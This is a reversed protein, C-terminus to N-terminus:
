SLSLRQRSIQELLLELEDDQASTKSSDAFEVAPCATPTAASMSAVAIESETDVDIPLTVLQPVLTPQPLPSHLPNPSPNSLGSNPPTSASEGEGEAQVEAVAVLRRRNLWNIIILVDLPSIVGDGNVDVWMPGEGSGGRGAGGLPGPGFSNIRNIVILADVPTIQGDGNVDRPEVPNQFPSQGTGVAVTFANSVSYQGSLSTATVTLALADSENVLMQDDKLKIQGDVVEFRPDSVTFQYADGDQDVVAVEGFVAGPSNEEITTLRVSIETPPDNVNAITFSLPFSDSATGTGDLATISLNISNAEEYDLEVGPKLMLYGGSVFFRPDSVVFEFDSSGEPDEVVVQGIVAGASNEPVVSDLIRIATPAENVDAVTLTATTSIQYGSVVDEIAFIELEIQQEEEYNLQVGDALTIRGNNITFRPDSTEFQYRSGRDADFVTVYGLDGAQSADTSELAPSLVQVRLDQPPDNVAAVNVVLAVDSSTQGDFVRVVARDVGNFNSSPVYSWQGDAALSWITWVVTRFAFQVM